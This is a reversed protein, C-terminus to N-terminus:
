TTPTKRILLWYGKLVGIADTPKKKMFSLAVRSFPEIFWTSLWVIFYGGTSFNKSAYQLRSRLSLFLRFPKVNHTTGEGTHLVSIDNFYYSKGGAAALQKSFDLEEFYVFFREDFYGVKEFISARMFMFAGMVQDVIKSQSHDWDTMLTGPTFTKPWLKSLGSADYFFRLPTPFRACSPSIVGNEDLLSCGMISVDPHSKMFELSKALTDNALMADPNLLLVFPSKCAKFGQNCAKAFGLNQENRIVKIKADQPLAEVSGDSSANDILWVNKIYDRNEPQILSKVCRSLLNGANWNVIVIEVPVEM